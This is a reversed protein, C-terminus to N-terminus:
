FEPPLPQSTIFTPDLSIWAEAESGGIIVVQAKVALAVYEKFKKVGARKYVLADQKLLKEAVISRSPRLCGTEEHRGLEAVLVEFGPPLPRSTVNIMVTADDTVQSGNVVAIEAPPSSANGTPLVSDLMRVTSRLSAPANPPTPHSFTTTTGDVTENGYHDVDSFSPSPPTEITGPCSRVSAWTRFLSDSSSSLSIPRDTSIAGDVGDLGCTELEEFVPHTLSAVNANANRSKLMPDITSVTTGGGEFVGTHNGGSRYGSATMDKSSVHENSRPTVPSTQAFMAGRPEVAL